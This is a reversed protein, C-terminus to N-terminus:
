HMGAKPIICKKSVQRITGDFDYLCRNIVSSGEEHCTLCAGALLIREQEKVNFPRMNLRTVSADTRETFFGTWADEPLNDHKNAAYLPEFTWKGEADLFLKGRGFGLALPDLHCSMCSRSQKVTTHGSVPAYLRHFDTHKGTRNGSHEITMIMGPSFIGVKQQAAPKDTEKLGLVPAEALYEGTYEVWTGKREKKTLMDYGITEKEYANHCGICQPVWATHCAECSLRNHAKDRFCEPSAPKMPLQKADSKRNLMAKGTEPFYHTNVLPQGEKATILIAPNNHSTNRLWAILQTERDTESLIKSDMKAKEASHCDECQIKVADEKHQNKKGDGMLEFSGHCDICLMGAEHHVDAPMKTFVRGDPLKKYNVQNAGPPIDKLPSEHWGAYSMSIRGSRSHCSECKDNTININIAPHFNLKSAEARKGGGSKAAKLLALATNAEDGYTLHCANCGGGRDLWGANGHETKEMGIHCGACLNKLHIDAPTNEIDNVNFIGSPTDNEGFVWKDVAILGSLTAMMSKPVREVINDHCGSGGCTEAANQLNGPVRYMNKHAADANLTFPDGGHCSYCGMIKPDHSLSLGKMGSHCSMCGETRGSIEFLGSHADIRFTAPKWDLTVPKYYNKTFPVQFSYVPGRFFYGTVTLIAYAIFAVWVLLKLYRSFKRGSFPVIYIVGTVLFLIVVVLLPDTFLHLLEQVGIFFWPGKMVAEDPQALPARFLLSAAIIILSTIVFTLWKVKISRVHEFIVIFIIITATAAHHLYLIILSEDHGALAGALFEGMLPISSLLASLLLHAQRSDADDKLIFGSLMVYFVVMITLVLRLWTGSKIIRKPEGSSLRFSESSSFHEIFHLITFILFLQASWYHMNRTLSAAPNSTVFSTVSLYAKVPDYPIVLFVGTLGCVMLSAIAIWGYTDYLKLYKRYEIAM